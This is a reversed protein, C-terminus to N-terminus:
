MALRTFGPLACGTASHFLVQLGGLSDKGPDMVSAPQELIDAFLSSSTYRGGVSRTIELASCGWFTRRVVRFGYRLIHM